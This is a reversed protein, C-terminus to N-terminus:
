IVRCTDTTGKTANMFPLYALINLFVGPSYLPNVFRIVASTSRIPTRTILVQGCQHDDRLELTTKLPILVGDEIHEPILSKTVPEQGAIIESLKARSNMKALDFKKTTNAFLEHQKKQPKAIDTDAETDAGSDTNGDRKRKKDDGDSFKHADDEGHGGKEIQESQEAVM